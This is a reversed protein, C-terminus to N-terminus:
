PRVEVRITSAVPRSSRFVEVGLSRIAIPLIASDSGARAEITASGEIERGFPGPKTVFM